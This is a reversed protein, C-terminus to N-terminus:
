LATSAHQVSAKAEVYAVTKQAMEHEAKAIRVQHEAEGKEAFLRKEEASVHGHKGGLGRLEQRDLVIRKDKEALYGVDLALGTRHAISGYMPRWASSMMLESVGAAKAAILLSAYGAPHVRTLGDRLLDYNTINNKPNDSDKFQMSIREGSKFEVVLEPKSLVAYISAVADAIEAPTDSSMLAKAEAVTYRHSAKMWIDGTLPASYHDIKITTKSGPKAPETKTEKFVPTDPTSQKGRTERITVAIFNKGATVTYLPHQRHNPHADSNLYLSVTDGELVPVDIRKDKGAVSLAGNAFQPLVKGNVAIAYPVSLTQESPLPDAWLGTNFFYSVTVEAKVKVPDRVISGRNQNTTVVLDPAQTPADTGM